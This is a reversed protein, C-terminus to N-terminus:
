GPRVRLLNCRNEPGARSTLESMRFADKPPAYRLGYARGKGLATAVMTRGMCASSTELWAGDRHM